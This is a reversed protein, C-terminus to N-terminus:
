TDAHTESCPLREGYAAQDYRRQNSGRRAHQRDVPALKSFSNTHLRPVNPTYAARGRARSGTRLRDVASGIACVREGSTWMPLRGFGKFFTQVSKHARSRPLREGNAARGCASPHAEGRLCGTWLCKNSFQTHVALCSPTHAAPGGASSWARLRDVTSGAHCAGSISAHRNYM